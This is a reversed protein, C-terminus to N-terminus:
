AATGGPGPQLMWYNDGALNCMKVPRLHNREHQAIRYHTGSVTFIAVFGSEFATIERFEAIPHFWYNGGTVSEYMTPYDTWGNPIPAGHKLAAATITGDADFAVELWVLDGESAGFETGRDTITIAEIASDMRGIMGWACKVTPRAGASPQGTVYVEFPHRTVIPADNWRRPHSPESALDGLRAENTARPATDQITPYPVQRAIYEAIPDAVPSVGKQDNTEM